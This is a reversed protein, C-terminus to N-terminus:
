VCRSDIEIQNKIRSRRSAKSERSESASKKRKISGQDSAKEALESNLSKQELITGEDLAHGEEEEEENDDKEITTLSEADALNDVAIALFVNLLIDLM